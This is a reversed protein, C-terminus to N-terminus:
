RRRDLACTVTRVAYRRADRGRRPTAREVLRDIVWEPSAGAELRGCVWGWERGSESQDPGQGDATPGPREAARAATSPSLRGTPPPGSGRPAKWPLRRGGAHLVNVWEGCRKWNRFGALRGLHEGSTSRLDAGVQSALLRQAAAREAEALPRTCGVWLHCGGGRSTRVVLVDEASALQGTRLPNVDDLFLLPWAYRRAPRAYIEAGRLNEARAWALPLSELPRDRQWCVVGDRRRVALDVRTIGRDNWWALMVETHESAKM